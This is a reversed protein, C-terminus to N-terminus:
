KPRSTRNSEEWFKVIDTTKPSLPSTIYAQYEQEITQEDVGSNVDMDHLGYKEALSMYAPVDGGAAPGPAPGEPPVSTARGRYEIM